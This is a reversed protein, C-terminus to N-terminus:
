WTLNILPLTIMAAPRTKATLYISTFAIVDWWTHIFIAQQLTWENAQTQYGLYWGVLFQYIPFKLESSIHAAAFLTATATNAWFENGLYEQGIPMLWGRFVAEEHTGANYSFASAFGADAFTLNRGRMASSDLLSLAVAALLPIFTTPRLIESFAFPALLLDGTTEEHKLFTFRGAPQQSRVATRFSAYASLGGSSQYIQAGLQYTRILNSQTDVNANPLEGARQVAAAAIGLGAVGTAGYFIGAQWQGELWQGLGPVVFSGLAPFFFNRPKEPRRRLGLDFIKLGSDSGVESSNLTPDVTTSESKLTSDSPEVAWARGFTSNLTLFILLLKAALNKM